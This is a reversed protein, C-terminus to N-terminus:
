CDIPCTEYCQHNCRTDPVWTFEVTNTPCGRADNYYVDILYEEGLLPCYGDDPLQFGVPILCDRAVQLPVTTAGAPQNIVLSVLAPANSTIPQDFAVNSVISLDYTVNNYSQHCHNAQLVPVLGLCNECIYTYNSVRFNRLVVGPAVDLGIFIPYFTRGPADTGPPCLGETIVYPNETYISFLPTCHTPTPTQSATRTSTQTSSSKSTATSSSTATQTASPTSTGSGTQTSSPSQTASSTSRSSGTQSATTTSTSTSTSTGTGTSTGTTTPSPLWPNENSLSCNLAPYWTIELTNTQCGNADTFSIDFVYSENLLPCFGTPPLSFVLHSMCDAVVQLPVTTGGQPVQVVFGVSVTGPQTIPTNFPVNAVIQITYAVGIYFAECINQGNVAIDFSPVLGLCNACTITENQVLTNSITGGASFRFQIGTSPNFSQGTPCLGETTRNPTTTSISFSAECAQLERQANDVLEGQLSDAALATVLLMGALALRSSRVTAM